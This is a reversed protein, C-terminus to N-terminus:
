RSLSPGDLLAAALDAARITTLCARSHPCADDDYTPTGYCPMCAPPARSTVVAHADGWPRTREVDTPGGAVVVRTGVAAALHAIGTDGTLVAGCAQLVHLLDNVPLGVVEVTRERLALPLKAHPPDPSGQIYLITARPVARLLECVAETALDAPLRKIPQSASGLHLAVIPGATDRLRCLLAEAAPSPPGLSIRSDCAAIAADDINGLLLQLLAGNAVFRHARPARAVVTASLRTLPHDDDSVVLPVGAFWRAAAAFHWSNMTAIFAVDFRRPRLRWFSRLRDLRSGTWPLLAIDHALGAHLLMSGAEPSRVLATVLATPQRERLLRFLSVNM